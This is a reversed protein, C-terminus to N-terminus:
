LFARKLFAAMQERTVNDKPCFRDNAPPNCGRTIGATALRDIDAAFTSGAPVDQFTVGSRETLNLARVLFAAMQERSVEDSPCFRDNTPPNCGRTIGATAMRDIDTAFRSTSPVDRFTINSTKTLNRARVLFAAMQDRSVEDRPCYRDNTPPNCGRTIGAAAIDMIDRHFPNSAPVDRFANPGLSLPNAEIKRRISDMQSYLNRGPCSTSGVDRHGVLTPISRSNHTVRAGVAPDLGHIGYKWAMVDAAANVAAAPPTGTEFNGMISVGFSGSNWNAAHAGVVGRDVGGYRGEYVTGYRDVLINYGIDNWGNGQTHWHYIGRVVGPAEERTYSNSGATHHLVGFKVKAYSPSGKRWSENAGWQSRTVMASYGAAEAPPPTTVARFTRTARDWLSESLGMSDIVHVELDELDGGQVRFQVHTAEGIWLADSSWGRREDVTTASREEESGPDPGDEEDLPEILEWASWVGDTGLTRYEAEVPAHAHVGMTTFPIPAETVASEVVAKAVDASQAAPGADGAPDVDLDDLIASVSAPATERAEGPLSPAMAGIVAALLAVVFVRKIVYQLTM